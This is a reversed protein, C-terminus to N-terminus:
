RTVNLSITTSHSLGGSTGTVTLSYLHAQTKSSTTITLVSGGSGVVFSPVFVAQSQGPVGSVSLNVTGSFGSVASVSVTFAAALGRQVSQSAPAASITFDGTPAPSVTLTIAASHTRTGDSGTVTLSYTGAPTSPSTTITMQSTGNGTVNSPNFSAGAGSPLGNVGFSVTGSYGNLATVTVTDAVSHGQVVTPSGSSTSIGFDPQSNVQTAIFAAFNIAGWGSVTDWGVGANSPLGNPLTGNSGSTIDYWVDSRGNQAYILDQIRGFRRHGLGDAPLGGQAIISQEADALSGAFTPSSFSTGMYGGQVAGNFVFYYPSGGNLSVDPFMRYNVNTPVGTGRQYAPRANFSLADTVWGGGSGSWFTETLRNGLSDYSAVTGGVMLVEPDDNPYDYGQLNTGYDGSACMYTIGQASMSLHLNHASMLFTNDGYWGYSESIVDATNDNAEATLVGILDWNGGDYVTLNCLPAMGLVMQIDLDGEASPTTSGNGGSITVVRVNSGVGGSPAPLGFQSYFLPLNSLLFGDFNSIAVNRGEGHNGGNFTTALSYLTRTQSPTLARSQPRTANELGTIGHVYPAIEAPIAYPKSHSYFSHIAPNSSQFEDIKTRFTSEAQSVTCDALINLRNKAVLKVDFGQNKLYTEVKQVQSLPLGYRTGVEQPSLFHRYNPNSPDSVSDVFSEMGAQDAFPLSVTIHLVKNPSAHKLLVSRGVVEPIAVKQGLAFSALFFAASAAFAIRQIQSSM